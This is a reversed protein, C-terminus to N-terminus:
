SLMGSFFPITNLEIEDMDSWSSYVTPQNPELPQGAGDLRIPESVPMGSFDFLRRVEPMGNKLQQASITGGRGDPDGARARAQLGEDRYQRRWGHPDLEFEGVVRVLDYGEVVVPNTRWALHKLTQASCIVSTNRASIVVTSQNVFEVPLTSSNVSVGLMNRGISVLTNSKQRTPQPVLIQNCSNMIPSADGVAVGDLTIGGRFIAEEIAVERMVSNTTISPQVLDPSDPIEGSQDEGSPTVVRYRVQTQWLTCSGPQLQPSDIQYIIARTNEDNGVHYHDGHGYGNLFMHDLISDGTDHADDTRVFVTAVLERTELNATATNEGHGAWMEVVAM